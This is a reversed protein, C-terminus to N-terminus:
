RRRRTEGSPWKTALHLFLWLFFKHGMENRSVAILVVISSLVLVSKTWLSRRCQCFSRQFHLFDTYLTWKPWHLRSKQPWSRQISCFCFFLKWLEMVQRSRRLYFPSFLCAWSIPIWSFPSVPALPPINESKGKKKQCVLALPLSPAHFVTEKQAEAKAQWYQKFRLHSFVNKEEKELNPFPLVAASKNKEISGGPDCRAAFNRLKRGKCEHFFPKPEKEELSAEAAAAQM